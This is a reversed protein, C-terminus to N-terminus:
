VIGGDWVQCYDATGVVGGDIFDGTSEDLVTMGDILNIYLPEDSTYLFPVFGIDYIPEYIYSFDYVSYTYTIEKIQPLVCQVESIQPLTFTSTQILPGTVVSVEIDPCCTGTLTLPCDAM